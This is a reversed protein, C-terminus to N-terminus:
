LAWLLVGGQAPQPPGFVSTAAREYGHGPDEEVVVLVNGVGRWRLAARAAEAEEAAPPAGGAGLRDGIVSIPDPFSHGSLVGGERVYGYGGVMHFRLRAKAAWLMAAADNTNTPAPLVLVVAGNPVRRVASTTFFAPVQVEKPGSPSAPLLSLAVLAVAAITLATARGRRAALFHDLTMAALLAVAFDMPLAFRQAVVSRMVPLHFIPGFPIRWDAHGGSAAGAGMSMLFCAAATVVAVWAPWQRRLAVLGLALLALLPVGLYGGTEAPSTRRGVHLSPDNVFPHLLFRSTPSV